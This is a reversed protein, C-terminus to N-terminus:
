INVKLQDFRNWPESVPPLASVDYGLVALRHSWLAIEGKDHAGYRGDAYLPMQRSSFQIRIQHSRGTILMVKILSLDESQGLVQYKLSAKKVGSRERGVVFTKNTNRDHFLYDDLRGETEVPTGHIVALYEKTMRNEKIENSLRAATERNRAFVMLGGVAKDLRHVVYFTEKTKLQKKLLEPMGGPSDESIVGYPKICLIIDKNQKIIEIAM